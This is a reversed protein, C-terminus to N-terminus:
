DQEEVDKREKLKLNDLMLEIMYRRMTIDNAFCHNKLARHIYDPIEFVIRKM